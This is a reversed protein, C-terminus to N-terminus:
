PVRFHKKESAPFGPDAVLMGPPMDRVDVIQNSYPSYVFGPQGEVAKATPVQAKTSPTPAPPQSPPPPTTEATAEQSPPPTIGSAPAVEQEVVPEIKTPTPIRRETTPAPPAPEEKKECSVIVGVTLPLLIWKIKMGGNPEPWTTSDILNRRTLDAPIASLLVLVRAKPTIGQFSHNVACRRM